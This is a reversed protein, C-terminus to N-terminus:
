ARLIRQLKYKIVKRLRLLPRFPVDCKEEIGGDCCLTIFSVGSGDLWGDM